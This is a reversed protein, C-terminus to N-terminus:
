LCKLVSFKKALKLSESRLDLTLSYVAKQIADASYILTSDVCAMSSFLPQVETDLFAIDERSVKREHYKKGVKQLHFEIRKKIAAMTGTSDLRFIRALEVLFNKNKGNLMSSLSM